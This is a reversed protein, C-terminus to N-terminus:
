DSSSSSPEKFNPNTFKMVPLMPTKKVYKNYAFTGGAGILVGAVILAFVIGFIAGGSYKNTSFDKPNVKVLQGNEM